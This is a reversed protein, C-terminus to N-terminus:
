KGEAQKIIKKAENIRDTVFMLDNGHYHTCTLMGKLAKLLLPAAEALKIEKEYGQIGFLAEMLFHEYETHTIEVTYDEMLYKDTKCKPCDLVEKNYIGMCNNCRVTNEQEM